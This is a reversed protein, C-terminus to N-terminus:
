LLKSQAQIKENIESGELYQYKTCNYDKLPGEYIVKLNDMNLFDLPKIINPLGNSISSEDLLYKIFEACYFCNKRKIKKNLAVLVLGIFNFKFNKRHEDFYTILTRIQEYQEDTVEMCCIIAKTNKFRKFTGFNVGEHVFGGIFAIYPNIRGFSYMEKLEKDLSISIHAYKKRTYIRIVKSLITGTYTLILYIKKM